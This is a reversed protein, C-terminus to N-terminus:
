GMREGEMNQLRVGLGYIHPPGEAEKIQLIELIIGGRYGLDKKNEHPVIGSNANDKAQKTSKRTFEGSM